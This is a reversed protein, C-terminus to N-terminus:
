STACPSCLSSAARLASRPSARLPALSLLGLGLPASFLLLRLPCLLGVSPGLTLPAILPTPQRAHGFVLHRIVPHTLQSRRQVRTCSYLRHSIARPLLPSITEASSLSQNKISKVTAVSKKKCVNRMESSWSVVRLQAVRCGACICVRICVYVVVVAHHMRARPLTCSRPGGRRGRASRGSVRGGAARPGQKRM